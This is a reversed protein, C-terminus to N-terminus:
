RGSDLSLGKYRRYQRTFDDRHGRSVPIKADCVLHLGSKDFATVYKLNVIFSAHPCLFYEPLKERFIVIRSYIRLSENATHIILQRKDSEIYIIDDTHLSRSKGGVKVTITRESVIKSKLKQYIRKLIDGECPKSIFAFPKFDAHELFIEEATKDPRSSTIIIPLKPYIDNIRGAFSLGNEYEACIILANVSATNQYLYDTLLIDNEFTEIRNKKDYSLFSHKVHKIFGSDTDLILLLM